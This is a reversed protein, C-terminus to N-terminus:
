LKVDFMGDVFADACAGDFDLVINFLGSGTHVHRQECFYFSLDFLLYVLALSGVVICFHVLGRIIGKRGTVRGPPDPFPMGAISSASLLLRAPEM